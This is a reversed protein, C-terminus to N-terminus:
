MRGMQSSLEIRDSMEPQLKFERVKKWIGNDKKTLSFTDVSLRKGVFEDQTLHELPEPQVQAISIHPKYFKWYYPSGTCSDVVMRERIQRYETPPLPTEDFDILKYLADIVALHVAHLQLNNELRLVLKQEPFLELASTDVEFSPLTIKDLLKVIKSQPTQTYLTMLTCHLVNDPVQIIQKQISRRYDRIQAALEQPPEFLMVYKM